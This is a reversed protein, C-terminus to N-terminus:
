KSKKLYVNITRYPDKYYFLNNNKRYKDTDLRFYNGKYELIECNYNNIKDIRLIEGNIIMTTNCIIVDPESNILFNVNDEEIRGIDILVSTIFEEFHNMPHVIYSYNKIDLYSLVFLYDLAFVSYEGEFYSDIEESLQYLPYNQLTTDISKLNNYAPQISNIFINITAFFIFSFILKEYRKDSVKTFLLPLFFLFYFLHHYYNHSGIFYILIGIIISIVNIDLISSKISKLNDLTFVIILTFFSFYLFRNYHYFERAWVRLEYFSSLSEGTYGLPIKVYNAFYLDAMDKSFYIIIFFAHFLTFAFFLASVQILFNKYNKKNDLIIMVIFPILFLLSGQNVSSSLSILFGVIFYKLINKQIILNFLYALAIFFLCYLESFESVYSVKSTLLIFLVSIMFSKLIKKDSLIYVISFLVLSILYLVVDNLLRFIVYNSNSIDFLYNYIYFLLPGKSEWQTEMPIYGESIEISAVLYSAVDWTITEYNLYVNQTILTIVFLSFFSILIKPIRGINHIFQLGFESNSYQFNKFLILLCIILLSIITVIKETDFQYSFGIVFFLIFIVQNNKIINV